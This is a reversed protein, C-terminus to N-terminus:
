SSWQQLFTVNLVELFADYNEKITVGDDVGEMYLYCGKNEFAKIVRIIKCSNILMKEESAPYNYIVTVELWM